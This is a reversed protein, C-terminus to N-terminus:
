VGENQTATSCPAQGVDPYDTRELFGADDDISNGTGAKAGDDTCM